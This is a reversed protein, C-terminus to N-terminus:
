ASREWHKKYNANTGLVLYALDLGLAELAAPVEQNKELAVKLQRMGADRDFSATWVPHEVLRTIGDNIKKWQEDSLEGAMMTEGAKVQVHGWLDRILGSVYALSSQYAMRRARELETPGLGSSEGQPEFALDTLTNLCTIINTTEQARLEIGEEGKQKLPKRVVLKELVKGKLTQETFAFPPSDDGPHKVYNRIRLDPHSLLNQLVAAQLAQKGRTRETAPLWQIFDYESVESSGVSEEYESFKNQWEDSMKAALEFPSLPLKKIKAQISNVLRTAEATSLNLYLKVTVRDRGMMWNAATKHQGDFMLFRIPQHFNDHELRCSPPEHLVNTQIDSYIAWVHEPKIVRPQVEEDNFLASRPVQLFAYEFAGAANQERLIPASDQSGDPFEVTVQDDTVSVYCPKPTIGFHELLGDYKVRGGKKKVYALLKLYPKVPITKANRKARNCAVHVLNLNGLTTPGGEAEPIDHDAELVDAARNMPEECLFCRGGSKDWLAQEVNAREHEPLKKRLSSSIKIPVQRRGPQHGIVRLCEDTATPGWLV